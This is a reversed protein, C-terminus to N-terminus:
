KKATQGRKQGSLFDSEFLDMQRKKMEMTPHVYRRLTIEINSHGLIESLSKPDFGKEVCRTAFTHRLAHYNYDELNCKKLIRKYKQYYHRPEMFKKKGTLLYCDDEKKNEKLYNILFFPIPITRNSTDTKPKDILIKTKATSNETHIRSMTKEITLTQAQLDFCGWKLACVEGIRLGMYLSLWIGIVYPKKITLLTEELEKQELDSLTKIVPDHMRPNHIFISPIEKYEHEVGYKLASKIVSLISTVSKASLPKSNTINGRELKKKTFENIRIGTLENLRINGLEPKIHKDILLVYKEYTTEKIQPKNFNIWDDLLTAVTRKSSYVMKNIYENKKDKVEKYTSAYISIYKNDRYIRAEWRGDSRKRINEGKRAM